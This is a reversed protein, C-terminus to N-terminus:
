MSLKNKWRVVLRERILCMGKRIGAGLAAIIDRFYEM